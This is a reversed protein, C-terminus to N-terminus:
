LIYFLNTIQLILGEYIDGRKCIEVIKRSFFHIFGNKKALLVIRRIM